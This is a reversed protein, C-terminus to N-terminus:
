RTRPRGSLARPQGGPQPIVCRVPPNHAQLTSRCPSTPPDPRYAGLLVAFLTTGESRALTRLRAVVEFLAFLFAIPLVAALNSWPRPRDTPLNSAPVVGGLRHRWYNWQREGDPGDLLDAQWRVFDAYQFALAPLPQDAGALAAPYIAHIEAILVGLTWFDSVIHHLVILLVNEGPGRNYLISEFLRVEKDWALRAIPQRKRLRRDLEEADWSSADINEFALEVAEYVLQVQKIAAIWM